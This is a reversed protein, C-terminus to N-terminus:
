RAARFTLSSEREVHCNEVNRARKSKGGRNLDRRIEGLLVRGRIYNGVALNEGDRCKGELNPGCGSYRNM